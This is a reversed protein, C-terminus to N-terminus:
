AANLGLEARLLLDEGESIAQQENVAEVRVWVADEGLAGANHNVFRQAAMDQSAKTQGASEFNFGEAIVSSSGPRRFIVYSAM